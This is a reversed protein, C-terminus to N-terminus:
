APGRWCQAYLMAQGQPGERFFAVDLDWKYSKMVVDGRRQTTRKFGELQADALAALDRYTSSWGHRKIWARPVEVTELSFSLPDPPEVPKPKPVSMVGM